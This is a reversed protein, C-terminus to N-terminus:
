AAQLQMRAAKDLLKAKAPTGDAVYRLCHHLCYQHEEDAPLGCYLFGAGGGKPTDNVPWHCDRAGLNTLSVRLSAADFAVAEARSPTVFDLLVKKEVPAAVQKVPAARRVVPKPKSTPPQKPVQRVIAARRYSRDDKEVHAFAPTSRAFGIAALLPTRHVKGIVANRAIGLDAGIQSASMGKRLLEAVRAVAADTWSTFM